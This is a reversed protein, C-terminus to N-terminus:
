PKPAPEACDYASIGNASISERMKKLEEETPPRMKDKNPTLLIPLILQEAAHVRFSDQGDKGRYFWPEYGWLWVALTVDTDAPLLVRFTSKLLGYGQWSYYPAHKWRLEVCPEVPKGTQADAPGVRIHGRSKTRPTSHRNTTHARRGLCCYGRAFEVWWLIRQKRRSVRRAREVRHSVM